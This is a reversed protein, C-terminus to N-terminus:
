GKSRVAVWPVDGMPGSMTGTMHDADKMTGTFTISMAGGGGDFSIYFTAKGDAFEGELPVDGMQSSLMGTLKKGDLKMTAAIDMPGQGADLSMNWNGAVTPATKAAAAPPAPPTAPPAQQAQASLTSVAVLAACLTLAATKM